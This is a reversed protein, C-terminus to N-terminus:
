HRVATEASALSATDRMEKFPHAAAAVEADKAKANKRRRLVAFVAAGILALAGIITGVAIGAKAGGSLGSHHHSVAPASSAASNESSPESTPTSAASSASTTAAPLVFDSATVNFCPAEINFDAPEVFTIDACAYFTQNTSSYEHAWYELQITANTGAAINSPANPVGYCQHGPEIESINRV